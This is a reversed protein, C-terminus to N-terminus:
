THNTILFKLTKLIIASDIFPSRNKIYYVDYQLKQYADHASAGYRYNIQAWGTIGPKILHRLDYYPITKRLEKVFELREPRPGVFSLEGKLINILQPLEDLHTKRLVNGIGTARTDKHYNAWQPGAKEADVPMTRFKYITFPADNKGIRTQTFIVPGRSTLKIFIAILALLPLLAILFFAAFFIEIPRILIDYIKHRRVLNELFWVEELESLPVMRFILEYLASIEIVEIGLVLMQYIRKASAQDKKLHAPIVVTNIKHTILIQSLHEFEKDALGEKMWFKIAYGLQPNKEIVSIIEQMTENSGIALIASSFLNRSVASNFFYRWVYDTIGFIILFLILNARPTIQFAPMTYFFLAAIATNILLISGFLQKFQFNNKLFKLDYLGAVYFVILWAIFVITFPELHYNFFQGYFRHQYRIFVVLILSAYLVIIDGTLLVLTKLKLFSTLM